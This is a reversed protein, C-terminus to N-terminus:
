LKGKGFWYLIVEASIALVSLIATKILDKKIAVLEGSDVTAYVTQAAPPRSPIFQFTAAHERIPSPAVPVSIVSQTRARRRVDALQKERRSKKPM